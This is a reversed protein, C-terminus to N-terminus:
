GFNYNDEWAIWESGGYSCLLYNAYVLGPGFISHLLSAKKHEGCKPLAANKAIITKASCKPDIRSGEFLTALPQGPSSIVVTRIPRQNTERSRTSFISIVM